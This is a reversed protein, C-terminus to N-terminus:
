INLANARKSRLAPLIYRRGWRRAHQDICETVKCYVVHTKSYSAITQLTLQEHTHGPWRWIRSRKHRWLLFHLTFLLSASM